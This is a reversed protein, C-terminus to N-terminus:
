SLQFAPYNTEGTGNTLTIRLWIRARLSFEPLWMPPVLM